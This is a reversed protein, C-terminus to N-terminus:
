GIAPAQRSEGLRKRVSSQGWQDRTAAAAYTRCLVEGELFHVYPPKSMRDVGPSDRRTAHILEANVNLLECWIGAHLEPRSRGDWLPSTETRAFPRHNAAM